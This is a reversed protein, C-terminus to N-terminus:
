VPLRYQIEEFICQVWTHDCWTHTLIVSCITKRVSFASTAQAVLCYILSLMDNWTVVVDLPVDVVNSWRITRTASVFWSMPHEVHWGTASHWCERLLVFHGHRLVPSYREKENDRVHTSAVQHVSFICSTAVDRDRVCLCIKLRLGDQVDHAILQLDGYCVSAEM